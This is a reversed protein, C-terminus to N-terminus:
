LVKIALTKHRTACLFFNLNDFDRLFRYRQVDSM